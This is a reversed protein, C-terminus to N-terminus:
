AALVTVLGHQVAWMFIDLKNKTGLRDNLDDIRYNLTRLPLEVKQAIRKNSYGKAILVIMALETLSFHYDAAVQCVKCGPERCPIPEHAM